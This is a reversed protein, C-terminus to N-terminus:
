SKKMLSKGFESDTIVGNKFITRGGLITQEVLGHLVMGDYPTLKHRHQTLEPGVILEADPNWVIIDAVNGKELTGHQDLGLMEAPKQCLWRAMDAPEAGARRMASWVIPLMYQLSSIGGWATAFDGSELNKLDPPCPSHDTGVLDIDGVMLAQRLITRNERERIPPACKFQTAGDPVDEAALYLYHPSTEITIPLGRERASRLMALPETASLHVLHVACGTEECLEILMKVAATEMAQPRSALYDGFRTWPTQPLDLDLEVEGHALLPKGHKKLVLMSERLTERDAFPFDDMGSNIMFAKGAIAGMQLVQDLHEAHRPIVGAHYAVNVALQGEASDLKQQFNEVTTTVPTSNLPMDVLTTTGGAAAARTATAFGEWDTRGPENIHVHVDIMGPMIVRSGVDITEEYGAFQHRRGMARIRGNEVYIAGPREGDPFVVREGQLVFVSM